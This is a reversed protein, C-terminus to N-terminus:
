YGGGFEYGNNLRLRSKYSPSQYSGSSPRNNLASYLSGFQGAANAGGGLGGLIQQLLTPASLAGIERALALNAEHEKQKGFEDYSAGGLAGLLTDEIGTSATTGARSVEQPIYDSQMVGRARMNENAQGSVRGLAGTLRGQAKKNVGSLPGKLSEILGIDSAGVPPGPNYPTYGKRKNLSSFLGGPVIGAIGGLGFGKAANKFSFGM